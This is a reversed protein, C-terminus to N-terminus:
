NESAFINSYTKPLDSSGPCVADLSYFSDSKVERKGPWFLKLNIQNASSKNPPM